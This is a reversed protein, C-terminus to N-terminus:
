SHTQQKDKGVCEHRPLTTVRRNQRLLNGPGGPQWFEETLPHHVSPLVCPLSFPQNMLTRTGERGPQIATEKGVAMDRILCGEGQRELLPQNNISSRACEATGKQNGYVKGMSKILLSKVLNEPMVGNSFARQKQYFALQQVLEGMQFLLVTSVTQCDVFVLYRCFMVHQSPIAHYSFFSCCYVM